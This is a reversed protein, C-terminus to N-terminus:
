VGLLLDLLRAAEETMGFAALTAAIILGGATLLLRNRTM